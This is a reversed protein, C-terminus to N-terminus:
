NLFPMCKMAVSNKANLLAIGSWKLPKPKSCHKDTKDDDTIESALVCKRDEDIQLVYNRKIPEYASDYFLARNFSHSLM